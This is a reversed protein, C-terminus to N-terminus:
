HSIPDGSSHLTGEVEVRSGNSGSGGSGREVGTVKFLCNNLLKGDWITALM